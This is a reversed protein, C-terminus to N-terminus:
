NYMGEAQLFIRLGELLMGVTTTMERHDQETETVNKRCNMKTVVLDTSLLIRANQNAGTVRFM